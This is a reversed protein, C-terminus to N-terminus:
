GHPAFAKDVSMGWQEWMRAAATVARLSLRGWIARSTGDANFALTQPEKRGTSAVPPWEESSSDAHTVFLSADLCFM